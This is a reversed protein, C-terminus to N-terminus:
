EEKKLEPYASYFESKYEDPIAQGKDYDEKM